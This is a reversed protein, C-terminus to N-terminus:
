PCGYDGSRGVDGAHRFRENKYHLMIDCMQEIWLFKGGPFIEKRGKQVGFIKVGVQCSFFNPIPYMYM